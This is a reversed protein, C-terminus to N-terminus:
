HWQPSVMFLLTRKEKIIIVPHRRTAPHAISIGPLLRVGFTDGEGTIVGNTLVVVSGIGVTISVLPFSVTDTPPQNPSKGTDTSVMYTPSTEVSLGISSM